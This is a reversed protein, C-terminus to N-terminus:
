GSLFLAMQINNIPAGDIKVAGIKKGERTFGVKEYLRVAADNGEFVELEVRELGFSRAKALAERVLRTGIGRGRHSAILGMGLTGCHRETPRPHPMIQCWGVVVGEDLALVQPIGLAINDMVAATFTELPPAETRALYRKERAVSDFAAHFGPILNEEFDVFTIL